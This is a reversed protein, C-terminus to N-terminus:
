WFVSSCTLNRIKRNDLYRKAIKDTKEQCKCGFYISCLSRIKKNKHKKTELPRGRIYNNKSAGTTSKCLHKTKTFTYM